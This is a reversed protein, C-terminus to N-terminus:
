PSSFLSWSIEAKTPTFPPVTHLCSRKENLSGSLSLFWAVNVKVCMIDSRGDADQEPVVAHAIHVPPIPSRVLSMITLPRGAWGSGCHTRSMSETVVCTEIFLRSVQRLISSVKVFLRESSLCSDLKILDLRWCEPSRCNTNSEVHTLTLSLFVEDFTLRHRYYKTKTKHIETWMLLKWVFSQYLVFFCYPLVFYIFFFIHGRFQLHHHVTYQSCLAPALWRLNAPGMLPVLSLFLVFLTPFFLQWWTMTM